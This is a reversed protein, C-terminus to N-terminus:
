TGQDAANEHDDIGSQDEHREFAVIADLEVESEQASLQALGNVQQKASAESVWEVIGAAALPFLDETKEGDTQGDHSANLDEFVATGVSGIRM